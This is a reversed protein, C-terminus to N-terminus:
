LVVAGAGGVARFEDSGWQAGRCMGFGLRTPLQEEVGLFAKWPFFM